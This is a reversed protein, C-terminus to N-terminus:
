RDAIGYVRERSTWGNIRGRMNGIQVREGDLATVLHLYFSGKVKCLVVQGVQPDEDDAFPRVTVQEGDRIRPTMSQGRPRITVTEGARLRDAAAALMLAPM